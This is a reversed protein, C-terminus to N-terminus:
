DNVVRLVTPPEGVLTPGRGTDSSAAAVGGNYQHLNHLMWGMQGDCPHM